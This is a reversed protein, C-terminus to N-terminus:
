AAARPAVNKVTAGDFRAIVNISRILDPHTRGSSRAALVPPLL